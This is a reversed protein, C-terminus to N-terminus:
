RAPTCRVFGWKTDEDDGCSSPRAAARLTTPHSSTGHILPM